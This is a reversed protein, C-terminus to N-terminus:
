QVSLYALVRNAKHVIQEVHKSWKLDSAMIVGLDKYNSVNRLETGSINYRTSRKDKNHSIRMVECKTPNFKMQWRDAWLNLTTLDIQLAISDEVNNIQRYIKSDDAFLKATSTIIDPIDNVYILFMVPGLISGQPVGSTVPSWDSYSGHILVRQKRNTLFNRFWLHLQGDIGNRNLKLLLHEHPVSDFAKSLDLFIVDSAKSSNRTLCWDNYCSLLQSVTSRGELYGFQSPNLLQHEAWFSVVRSTVVKEAIKSIIFTLSIQRYNEKKHKPGKKHVPIIHAIKWDSPLSGSQFSKNFLNCLSTSLELACEKLIRPLLKDPGPSKHINLNKLHKEVESPTCLVNCLKEDLVYNFEPLTRQEHTFVSAFYANMHQAIEQDGAIEASGEKLFVVDNAGKRISRMYNWFPKSNNEVQLKDALAKLHSWKASNCKM